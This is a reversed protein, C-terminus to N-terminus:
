IWKYYIFSSEDYYWYCAGAQQKFQMNNKYQQYLEETTFYILMERQSCITNLIEDSYHDVVYGEKYVFSNEKAVCAPFTFLDQLPVIKLSGGFTFVRAYTNQAHADQNLMADTMGFYYYIYDVWDLALDGWTVDVYYYEDDLKILNWEHGQEVDEPGASIRAVDFGAQKLIYYFMTAYGECMTENANTLDFLKRAGEENYNYKECLFEYVYKAKTYEDGSPIGEIVSNVFLNLTDLQEHYIEMSEELDLRNGLYRPDLEVITSLQKGETEISVPYFYKVYWIEPHDNKFAYEIRFFNHLSINNEADAILFKARPRKTEPKEKDLWDSSVLTTLIVYIESYIYKEEDDLMSFYFNNGSEMNALAEQVAEETLGKEERERLFKDHVTEVHTEEAQEIIVETTHDMECSELDFEGCGCLLCTLMCLCFFFWKKM